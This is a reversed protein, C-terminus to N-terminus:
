KWAALLDDNSREELGRRDRYFLFLTLVHLLFLSEGFVELTVYSQHALESWKRVRCRYVDSDRMRLDSVRLSTTWASGNRVLSWKGTM